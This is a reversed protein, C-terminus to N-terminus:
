IESATNRISGSVFIVLASFSVRIVEAQPADGSSGEVGVKVVSRGVTMCSHAGLCQFVFITPFM